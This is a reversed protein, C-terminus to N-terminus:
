AKFTPEEECYNVCSMTYNLLKSSVQFESDDLLIIGYTACGMKCATIYMKSRIEEIERDLVEKNKEYEFVRNIPAETCGIITILFFFCVILSLKRM